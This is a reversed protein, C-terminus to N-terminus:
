MSMIPIHYRVKWYLNQLIQLCQAMCALVNKNHLAAKLAAFSFFFTKAMQFWSPLRQVWLCALLAHRYQMVNQSRDQTGPVLEFRPLATALHKWQLHPHLQYASYTSYDFFDLSRQQRCLVMYCRRRYKELVSRQLQLQVPRQWLPPHCWACCGCWVSPIELFGARMRDCLHHVSLCILNTCLLGEPHCAERVGPLNEFSM